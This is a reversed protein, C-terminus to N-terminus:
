AAFMSARSGISRRRGVQKRIWSIEQLQSQTSSIHDQELAAAEGLDRDHTLAVGVVTCSNANATHHGHTGTCTHRNLDRTTAKRKLALHENPMEPEGNGMRVYPVPVHVRADVRRAHWM